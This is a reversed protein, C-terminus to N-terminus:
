TFLFTFVDVNKSNQGPGGVGLRALRDKSIWGYDSDSEILPHNSNRKSKTVPVIDISNSSLLQKFSCSSVYVSVKFM